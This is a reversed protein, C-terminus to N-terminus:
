APPGPRRRRRAALVALAGAVAVLAALAGGIALGRGATPPGSAAASEAALSTAPATTVPPATTTPTTTTAAITTTPPAPVTLTAIARGSHDDGATVTLRWRGPAFRLRGTYTGRPGSAALRASVRKGGATAVATLAVGGAKHGDPYTALATVTAPAGAEPTATTLKILVERSHASAPAAMGALAVLALIGAALLAPLRPRASPWAARPGPSTQPAPFHNTPVIAGPDTSSGHLYDDPRRCRNGLL